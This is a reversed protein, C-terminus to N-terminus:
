SVHLNVAPIAARSWFAAPIRRLLGWARQAIMLSQLVALPIRSQPSQRLQMAAEIPNPWRSRLAMPWSQPHRLQQMIPRSDRCHSDGCIGSQWQKLIANRLWRPPADVSLMGSRAELLEVAAGIVARVWATRRKEGQLFYDIDFDPGASELLTAIDCLWLPRWAGHRLLHLCQQRLQDEPGLVSVSTSGVKVVQAHDCIEKWSRDELDAVGEHLDIAGCRDGLQEFFSFHRKLEGPAFVLDFDGFPRLGSVPYCRSISWGKILLPAAARAALQEYLSIIHLDHVEGQMLHLLSAASLEGGASSNALSGGSIRRYALAATGSELLFPSISELEPLTISSPHCVRRWSGALLKATLWGRM